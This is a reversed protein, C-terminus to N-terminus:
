GVVKAAFRTLTRQLTTSAIDPPDSISNAHARTALTSRIRL